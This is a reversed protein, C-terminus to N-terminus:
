TTYRYFPCTIRTHIYTCTYESVGVYRARLQPPCLDDPINSFNKKYWFHIYKFCGKHRLIHIFPASLQLLCLELSCKEDIQTPSHIYVCVCMIGALFHWNRCYSIEVEDSEATM